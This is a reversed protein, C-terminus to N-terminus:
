RNNSGQNNSGQPEEGPLDTSVSQVHWDVKDLTQILTQDLIGYAKSNIHLGDLRALDERLFRNKGSYRLSAELDLYVLGNTECFDRIWDNFECISNNRHPKFPSGYQLPNRGKLLYGAFVKYSHLRTVPVVTSPIPIVDNEQCEAIWEKMKSKYHEMDGPFYAACEKIIVGDPKKDEGYLAMKLKDTKDFSSGQYEFVYDSLGLRDPLQPINWVRGISAGLLVVRKPYTNEKAKGSFGFSCLLLFSLLILIGHFKPMCIEAVYGPM